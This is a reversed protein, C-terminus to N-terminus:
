AAIEADSSSLPDSDGGDSNGSTQRCMTLERSMAYSPLSVAPVSSGALPSSAGVQSPWGFKMVQPQVEKQTPSRIWHGKSVGSATAEAVLRRWAAHDKEIISIAMKADHIEYHLTTGSKSSHQKFDDMWRLAEEIRGPAIREADEISRAGALPGKGETNVAIIKWDAQGEDILCVAGLPRCCVVEGVGQAEPCLDLIDLPDDDGPAGFIDDLEDPDRFTQPFCGYNFPVPCGFAKLKRSGKADERIVNEVLRTQLEFKQLSGRPIENVYRFLGTEQDLWTKVHLDVHHWMSVGTDPPPTYWRVGQGDVGSQRRHTYMVESSSSCRRLIGSSARRMKTRSNQCRRENTMASSRSSAAARIAVVMGIFGAGGMLNMVSAGQAAPAVELASSEEGCDQPPAESLAVRKGCASLGSATGAVFSRASRGFLVTACGIVVLCLAVHGLKGATGVENQEKALKLGRVRKSLLPPKPKKGERLSSKHQITLKAGQDKSSSVAHGKRESRNGEVITWVLVLIPYGCLAVASIPFAWSKVSEIIAHVSSVDM